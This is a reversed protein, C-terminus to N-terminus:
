GDAPTADADTQPRCEDGLHHMFPLLSVCCSSRWVLCPSARHGRRSCDRSHHDILIIRIECPRRNSAYAQAEKRKEEQEEDAVVDVARIDRNRCQLHVAVEAEARARVPQSGSDKEEAIRQELHRAIENEGADARPPPDGPMTMLQPRM